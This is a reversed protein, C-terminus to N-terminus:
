TLAFTPAKSKQRWDPYKDAISNISEVNDIIDPLSKKFYSYARLAHGDYGSTKGLKKITVKASIPINIISKQLTEYQPM